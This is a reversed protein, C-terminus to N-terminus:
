PTVAEILYQGVVLGAHNSRNLNQWPAVLPCPETLWGQQALWWLTFHNRATENGSWVKIAVGTQSPLHALAMVGDAGVKALVQGQTAQMISTDVRGHGGILVPHKVMAHQQRSLDGCALAYYLRALAHLPMYFTPASCGDLATQLRPVGTLRCLAQAVAQQLPHDPQLYNHAPWGNFHCALLMGAHKGSCNHHIPTPKDGRMLLGLRSEVDLPAHCGCQLAPQGAKDLMANVIAQHAPSGTHSSCCLALWDLPIDPWAHLLPVSQFPKTASRAFVWPSTKLVELPTDGTWVAVSLNHTNERASGRTESLIYPMATLMPHIM